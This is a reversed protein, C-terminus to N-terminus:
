KAYSTDSSVLNPEIRESDEQDADDHDGQNGVGHDVIRHGCGEGEDHREDTQTKIFHEESLIVFAHHILEPVVSRYQSLVKLRYARM